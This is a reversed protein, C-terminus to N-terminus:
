CSRSSTASCRRTWPSEQRFRVDGLRALDEILDAVVLLDAHVHVAVGAGAAAAVVVASADERTRVAGTCVIRTGTLDPGLGRVKWGERVVWGQSRLADLVAVYETRPGRIVELPADEM